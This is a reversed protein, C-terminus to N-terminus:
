FPSHIHPITNNPHSLDIGSPQSKSDTSQPRQPSQAPAPALERAKASAAAADIQTAGPPVELDMLYRLMEKACRSQAAPALIPDFPQHDARKMVRDLADQTLSGPDACAKVALENLTLCTAGCGPLSARATATPRTATQRDIERAIEAARERNDIAEQLADRAQKAKVFGALSEKAQRDFSERRVQERLLLAQQRISDLEAKTHSQIDVEPVPIGNSSTVQARERKARKVFRATQATLSEQQAKKEAPTYGLIGQDLLQQERAYAQVEREGPTLVQVSGKSTFQEFHVQEHILASALFAPGLFAEPFLLTIGDSSTAGADTLLRDMRIMKGAENEIRREDHDAFIPVWTVKQGLNPSRKYMTGEPLRNGLAPPNIQYVDMARWIAKNYAEAKKAELKEIEQLILESEPGKAKALKANAANIAKKADNAASIFEQIEARQKETASILARAPPHLLLCCLIVTTRRM